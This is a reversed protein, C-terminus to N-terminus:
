MNVTENPGLLYHNPNVYGGCQLPAKPDPLDPTLNVKQSKDNKKECM